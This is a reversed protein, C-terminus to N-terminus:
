NQLVVVWIKESQLYCLAKLFLDSTNCSTIPFLVSTKYIDSVFDSAENGELGNM